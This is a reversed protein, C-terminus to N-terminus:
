IKCEYVKNGLTAVNSSSSLEINAKVTRAYDINLLYIRLSLWNLAMQLKNTDNTPAARTKAM